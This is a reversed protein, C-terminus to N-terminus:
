SGASPAPDDTAVAAALAQQSAALKATLADIDAQPIQPNSTVLQQIQKALDGLAAEAATEGAVIQDVQASLATIDAMEQQEEHTITNLRRTTAAQYHELRQELETIGDAVDVLATAIEVLWAITTNTHQAGPAQLM